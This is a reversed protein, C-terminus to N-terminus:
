QNIMFSFEGSIELITRNGITHPTINYNEFVVIIDYNTPIVPNQPDVYGIVAYNELVGDVLTEINVFGDGSSWGENNVSAQAGLMFNYSSILADIAIRYALFGGMRIEDVYVPIEVQQGSVDTLTHTMFSKRVVYINLSDTSVAVSLQNDTNYQFSDPVEIITSFPFTTNNIYNM